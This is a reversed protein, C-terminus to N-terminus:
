YGRNENFQKIIQLGLWQWPQKIIISSLRDAYEQLIDVAELGERFPEDIKLRRIFHKNGQTEITNWATILVANKKLARYILGSPLSAAVGLFVVPLHKYPYLTKPIDIAAYIMGKEGMVSDITRNIRGAFDTFIYGASFRKETFKYNLSQYLQTLKPTAQSSDVARALTHVDFGLHSLAVAPIFFSGIHGSLIIVPRGKAKASELNKLGEIKFYKYMREASMGLSAYADSERVLKILMSKKVINEIESQTPVKGTRLCLEKFGEGTAAAEDASLKHLRKEVSLSRIGCAWLPLDLFYYRGKQVSSEAMQM